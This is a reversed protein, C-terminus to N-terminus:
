MQLPNIHRAAGRTIECLCRRRPVARPALIPFNQVNAATRTQASDRGLAAEWRWNRVPILVWEAMGIEELIAFSEQNLDTALLTRNLKGRETRRLAPHNQVVGVARGNQRRRRLSLSVQQVKPFGIQEALLELFARPRQAPSGHQHYAVNSNETSDSSGHSDRGGSNQCILGSM